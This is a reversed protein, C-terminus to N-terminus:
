GKLLGIVEFNLPAGEIKPLAAIENKSQCHECVVYNHGDTQEIGNLQSVKNCDTNKCQFSQTM